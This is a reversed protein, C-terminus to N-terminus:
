AHRSSGASALARNVEAVSQGLFYLRGWIELSLLNFFGNVNDRWGVVPHTIGHPHMGLRDVCFGQAFFEVRALPALYDALPLPFGVKKRHVIERPLYREAVTKLGWKDIQGRLRYKMPLNIAAQVLRHDLFPARCEVGAGMSMRDLRRLLPALFNTLDGLMAALVGRDLEDAVFGFARECREHLEKRSYRDIFATAHALLGEYGTFETAPVDELAYGALAIGRQVKAPLRKLLWKIRQYQRHRRYRHAYGGFLEDAAEGSLLVKVGHSRAYESILLFYVSNPHTLPYDSYFIARVLNDRFSAGDAELTLLQIGLSDTVQKAFRNEDEAGRGTVSVNFALLDKRGESALATILSSDVGGSCLTGVPVDSVLRDRIGTRVLAEIESGVAESSMGCFREYAERNVQQELVYYPRPQRVRGKTIELLHGAPLASIGDFLTETSGFDVNRYLSWETLRRHNPKVDGLVRALTKIESAFLLRDKSQAYYLPKKGYRDRVLILTDAGPDYVAFAFMGVFRDFAAVGWEEYAQLVVETDTNSRFHHGGNELEKRLEAFNYVEGNYTIWRGTRADSMPMHGAASLDIISLRNSGLVARGLTAVGRDDPGRHIQADCMTSVLAADDNGPERGSLSVLGAIGCM